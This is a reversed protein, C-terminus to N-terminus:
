SKELWEHQRDENLERGGDCRCSIVDYFEFEFQFDFQNSRGNKM